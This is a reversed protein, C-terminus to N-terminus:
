LKRQIEGMKRGGTARNRPVRPGNEPIRGFIENQKGRESVSISFGVLLWDGAAPAARTLIIYYAVLQRENKRRNEVGRQRAREENSYNEDRTRTVFDQKRKAM